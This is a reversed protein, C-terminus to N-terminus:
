YSGGTDPFLPVREGGLDKVEEDHEISYIHYNNMKFPFHSHSFSEGTRPNFKFTKKRKTHTLSLPFFAM